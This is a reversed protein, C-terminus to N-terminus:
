AHTPLGNRVSGDTKIGTPKRKEKKLNVVTVTGTQHTSPVGKCEVIYIYGNAQDAKQIYFRFLVSVLEESSPKFCVHQQQHKNNKTPHTPTTGGLLTQITKGRKFFFVLM